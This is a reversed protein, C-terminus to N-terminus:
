ISSQVGKATRLSAVFISVLENAEKLPLSVREPRAIGADVLLEPKMRRKSCLEWNQFLTRRRAPVVSQAIIPRSLLRRGCCSVLLSENNKAQRCVGVRRIVLLAFHKTRNKMMEPTTPKM